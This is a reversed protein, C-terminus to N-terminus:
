SVGGHFNGVDSGENEASFPAINSKDFHFGVFPQDAHAFRAHDIAGFGHETIQGLGDRAIDEALVRKINFSESSPHEALVKAADPRALAAM